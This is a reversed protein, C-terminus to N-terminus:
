SANLCIGIPQDSMSFLQNSGRLRAVTDYLDDLLNIVRDVSLGDMVEALRPHNIPSLFSTSSVLRWCAHMTLVVHEKNKRLAHVEKVASDIALLWLARLTPEPLLLLDLLIAHQVSRGLFREVHEKGVVALHQEVKVVAREPHDATFLDLASSVGCGPMGTVITLM